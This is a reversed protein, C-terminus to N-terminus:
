FEVAIKCGGGCELKAAVLFGSASSSDVGGDANLIKGLVAGCGQGNPAAM